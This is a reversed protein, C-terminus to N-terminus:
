IPTPKAFILCLEFREIPMHAFFQSRDGGLFPLHDGAMVGKAVIAFCIADGKKCRLPDAGVALGRRLGDGFQDPLDAPLADLRQKEFVDGSRPEDLLEGPFSAGDWSWGEVGVGQRRWVSRGRGVDLHDLVVGGYQFLAHELVSLGIGRGSPSRTSIPSSGCM